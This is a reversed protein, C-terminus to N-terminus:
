KLDRSLVQPLPQNQNDPTIDEEGTIKNDSNVAVAVTNTINSAQQRYQVVVATYTKPIAGNTTITEERVVQVPGALPHAGATTSARLCAQPDLELQCADNWKGAYSLQVWQVVTSAAPSTGGAAPVSSNGPLATGAAPDQARNHAEVAVWLGLALAIALLIAYVVNRWPHKQRTKAAPSSSPPSNPATTPPAQSGAAPPDELPGTEEGAPPPLNPNTV